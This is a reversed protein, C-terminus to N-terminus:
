RVATRLATVDGVEGAPRGDLLAMVENTAREVDQPKLLTTPDTRPPTTGRRIAAAVQDRTVEVQALAIDLDIAAARRDATRPPRGGDYVSGYTSGDDLWTERYRIRDNVRRTASQDVAIVRSCPDPRQGSRKRFRISFM